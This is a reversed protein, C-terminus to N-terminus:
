IKISNKSYVDIMLNIVKKEEIRKKAIEDSM